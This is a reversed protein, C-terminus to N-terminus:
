LGSNAQDTKIKKFKMEINSFMTQIDENNLEFYNLVVADKYAEEIEELQESAKCRLCMAKVTESSM